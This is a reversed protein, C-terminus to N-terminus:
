HGYGTIALLWHRPGYGTDARVLKLRVDKQATMQM